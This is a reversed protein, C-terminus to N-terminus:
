DGRKAHYGNSDFTQFAQLLKSKDIKDITIM